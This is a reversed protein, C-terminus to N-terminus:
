ERIRYRRVILVITVAIAIFTTFAFIYMLSRVRLLEEMVSEYDKKLTNYSTQLSDFNKLLETYNSLTVYYISNLNSFNCLLRNYERLLNRYAIQVEHAEAVYPYILPYNDRNTEDIVYPSDGIWDSITENQYPGSHSDTGTYDSWYNGGSPYGDDWVNYYGYGGGSAVHCQITNNLFNNHYIKNFNSYIYIGCWKNNTINNGFIKIHSSYGIYIGSFLSTGGPYIEGWSNGQINNFCIDNYDSADVLIGSRSNNFVINRIISNNLCGILIVVGDSNNRIDNNSVNNDNSNDYLDIGVGNSTIVNENISDSSSNSVLIGFRNQIILNNCVFNHSSSFLNIGNGNDFIENDTINCYKVYRLDIGAGTNPEGGKITFGHVIVKNSIITMVTGGCATISCTIGRSGDIITADKDEGILSITKNVVVNEYYTGAKVFIIDGQAAANIAEQVTHFDAPGDDDVIWIKSESKVLQVNFRFMLMCVLLLTLLLGSVVKKM